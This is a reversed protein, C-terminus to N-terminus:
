MLMPTGYCPALDPLALAAEHTPLRPCQLPMASAASHMIAVVDPTYPVAMLMSKAVQLPSIM